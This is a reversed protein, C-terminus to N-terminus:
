LSKWWALHLWALAHQAYINLVFLYGTLLLTGMAILLAGGAREILRYHRQLRKFAALARTFGFGVAIFPVALGLGYVTLLLVGGQLSGSTGAVTLM